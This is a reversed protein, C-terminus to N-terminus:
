DAIPVNALKFLQDALSADEGMDTCVDRLVDYDISGSKIAEIADSKWDEIRQTSSTTLNHYKAINELARLRHSIDSDKVLGRAIQAFHALTESAGMGLENLREDIAVKIKPNKLLNCATVHAGKEAYGANIAIQYDPLEPQIINKVKEDVFARQKDTLTM